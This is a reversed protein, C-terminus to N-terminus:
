KSRILGWFNFKKPTELFSDQLAKKMEAASRYRSAQNVSTAKKIVDMISDPILKDRPIIGEKHKELTEQLTAGAFPNNGTILEYLTVGVEYIDTSPNLGVKQQSQSFQEPAAYKPTGMLSSSTSSGGSESKEIFAIGLDMLRVSRGNEIMINSPKIDLHVVGKSHIFSLADLVPYMLECIRKTRINQPLRNLNSKVFADINVGNVWKSIIFIPGNPIMSECCGLMEVLNQHRFMLNSENRARERIAPVSAYKDKVRKIAVPENSVADWGRYVTGMAGEGLPKDTARFCYWRRGVKLYVINSKIVINDPEATM